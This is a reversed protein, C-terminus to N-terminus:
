IHPEVRKADYQWLTFHQRRTIRWGEPTRELDDLYRLGRVLVEKEGVLFGLVMTDATATDGTVRVVQSSPAHFSHEHKGELKGKAATDAIRTEMKGGFLSVTADPTFASLYLDLDRRDWAAWYRMCTDRVEQEDLLRAARANLSEDAM